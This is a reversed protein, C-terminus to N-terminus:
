KKRLRFLIESERTRQQVKHGFYSYNFINEFSRVCIVSYSDEMEGATADHFNSM